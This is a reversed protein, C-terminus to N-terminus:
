GLGNVLDGLLAAVVGAAASTGLYAADTWAWWRAAGATAAGVLTAFAM